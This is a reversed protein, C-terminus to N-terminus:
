DTTSWKSARTVYQVEGEFRDFSVAFKQIKPEQLILRTDAKEDLPKPSQLKMLTTKNKRLTEINDIYETIRNWNEFVTLKRAVRSLTLEIPDQILSTLREHQIQEQEDLKKRYAFLRDKHSQIRRSAVMNLCCFTQWKPHKTGLSATDIEHDPFVLASFVSNKYHLGDLDNAAIHADEATEMDAWALWKSPNCIEVRTLSQVRAEAGLLGLIFSDEFDTGDWQIFIGREPIELGM